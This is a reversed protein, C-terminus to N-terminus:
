KKAGKKKKPTSCDTTIRDFLTLYWNDDIYTMYFIIEPTLVVKYGTKEILNVKHKDDKKYYEVKSYSNVFEVMSSLYTRTKDNIFLGHDTWGYYADNTPSCKFITNKQQIPLLPAKKPVRYILHSIEENKQEVIDYIKKQFTFVRRGDLKYLNYFGFKPHIYKKNILDLKDESMAKIIENVRLLLKQDIVPREYVFEKEQPELAKNFDKMSCGSIFLVIFLPFLINSIKRNM